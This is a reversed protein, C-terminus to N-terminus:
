LQDGSSRGHRKLVRVADNRKEIEEAREETVRKDRHMVALKKSMFQFTTPKSM